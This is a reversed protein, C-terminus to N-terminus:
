GSRSSLGGRARPRPRAARLIFRIGIFRPSPCSSASPSPSRSATTRRPTDRGAGMRAVGSSRSRAGTMLLWSSKRYPRFRRTTISSTVATTSRPRPSLVEVLVRPNLATHRKPDEPDLEVAGGIITVDAYTGLGTVKSRIRLDPSYVACPRGRLATALLASVNTTVRAHDPTGGSMAWVQGGFFELKIGKDEVLQAYEAFSFRHHAASGM